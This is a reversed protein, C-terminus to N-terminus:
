FSKINEIISNQYSAGKELYEAKNWICIYGAHCWMVYNESFYLKKSSHSDLVSLFQGQIHILKM